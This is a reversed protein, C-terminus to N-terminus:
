KGKAKCVCGAHVRVPGRRVGEVTVFSTYALM